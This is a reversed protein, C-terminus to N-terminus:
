KEARKCADSCQKVMRVLGNREANDNSPALRMGFAPIIATLKNLLAQAESLDEFILAIDDAYELNVLSEGAVIQVGSNQFGDLTRRMIEDTVFNFLFPSLPCGQRVGSKTPFSKSLEGYVKVRGSTHSYLSRIINVFKQPMGQQALTTLLVGRWRFPAHHGLCPFNLPLHRTRVASGGTLLNASWGSLWGASQSHLIFHREAFRGPNLTFASRISKVLPLQGLYGTFLSNITYSTKTETVVSNRGGVIPPLCHPCSPKCWDLTSLGSLLHHIWSSAGPVKRHHFTPSGIWSDASLDDFDSAHLFLKIGELKKKLSEKSSAYLMKTRTPLQDNVWSVFVLKSDTSMGRKYPFDIVAFCGTNARRQMDELFDEYKAGSDSLKDVIIEESEVRFIAYMNTHQMKIRNFVELCEESPKIGSTMESSAGFSLLPVRFRFTVKAEFYRKDQRKRRCSGRILPNICLILAKAWTKGTLKTRTPGHNGNIQFACTFFPTARSNINETCPLTSAPALIRM